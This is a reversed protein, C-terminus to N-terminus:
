GGIMECKKDDQLIEHTRNIESHQNILCNGAYNWIMKIPVDLKDKGRVGDRLATMEPGREIADTWMFMSISTQVPNELTPMREFPLSYSGERAGSNGGNIGVNGTLISLMSIARTAIEGNAHRQPGWGQSIYAPKASGIERAAPCYTGGTDRHNKIGVGPTKAVGDSGQAWFIRRTIGNAPASAPLTKEDYGVCYKDLFPQDVLDETIM